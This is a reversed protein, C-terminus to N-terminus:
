YKDEALHCNAGAISSFVYQMGARTIDQCDALTIWM